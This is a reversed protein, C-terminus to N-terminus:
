GFFGNRPDIMADILGVGVRLESILRGNPRSQRTVLEGCGPRDLICGM